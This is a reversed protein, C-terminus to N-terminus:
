AAKSVSAAGVFPRKVPKRELENEESGDYHVQNRGAHKAKYLAADALGFLRGYGDDDGDYAAVGFSATLHIDEPLGDIEANTLALRIREALRAAASGRCNWVAICFEEGGVRGALDTERITSRVLQGFVAIANDGVQHGWIDNVQKFHDLDAVILAVPKNRAKSRALMALAEQEFSRRSRLGTLLDTDATKRELDLQDIITAALLTLAILLSFMAVAIVMVAYYASDRYETASISTELIFTAAPRVFFQAATIAFLWFLLRDVPERGRLLDWPM